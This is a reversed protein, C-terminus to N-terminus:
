EKAHSECEVRKVGRTTYTFDEWSECSYLLLTPHLLKFVLIRGVCFLFFMYCYIEETLIKIRQLVLFTRNDNTHRPHTSNASMTNTLFTLLFNLVIFGKKGCNTAYKKWHVKFFGTWRWTFKLMSKVDFKTWLYIGIYLCFDLSSFLYNSLKFFM